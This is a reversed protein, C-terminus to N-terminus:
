KETLISEMELLFLRYLLLYTTHNLCFLIDNNVYATPALVKQLVALM